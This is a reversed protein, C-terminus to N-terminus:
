SFDSSTIRNRIYKAFAQADNIEYDEFGIKEFEFDVDYHNFIEVLLERKFYNKNFIKVIKSSNNQFNNIIKKSNKRLYERKLNYEKICELAIDNGFYQIIEQSFDNNNLDDFFNELYKMFLKDNCFEVIKEQNMLSLITASAIMRGHLIDFTRAPYKMTLTHALLHESQSAPASSNAITMAWGSILIMQLLNRLFKDDNITFNKYNKVFNKIIKQQIELAEFNIEQLFVYHNLILDFNCSYFCLVDALGAKNLKWPANKLILLDCLVAIPLKAELTKKHNNISISANKSAYGNMSLASILIIYDKNLKKASYKCLDNITGSGFALILKCNQANKVVVNVFNENAQPTKLILFNAFQENFNKKFFQQNNKWIIEDSVFLIENFNFGMESIIKDIKSALNKNIRVDIKKKLDMM